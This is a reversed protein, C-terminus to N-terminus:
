KSVVHIQLNKKLDGWDLLLRSTFLKRNNAWGTTASGSVNGIAQHYGCLSGNFAEM